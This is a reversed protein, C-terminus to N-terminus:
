LLKKLRDKVRNYTNYLSYYPIGTKRALSAISEGANIMLFVKKDYWYMKDLDDQILKYKATYDIDNTYARLKETGVKHIKKGKKLDIFMWRLCNFIYYYNIDDEGYSIDLGKELKLQMKIYMEQVLDRSTEFDLGFSMCIDVWDKNKKFLLRMTKEVM